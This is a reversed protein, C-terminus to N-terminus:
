LITINNLFSKSYVLSDEYLVFIGTNRYPSDYYANADGNRGMDGLANVGINFVGVQNLGDLSINNNTTNTDLVQGNPMTLRVGYGTAYAVTTWNGTINFTQDAANPIGTTVNGVFAPPDLTTYVVGNITQAVQYSYTNAENEISINKDIM